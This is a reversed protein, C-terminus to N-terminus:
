KTLAVEVLVNWIFNFVHTKVFKKSINKMGRFKLFIQFLNHESLNNENM